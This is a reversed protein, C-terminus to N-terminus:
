LSDTQGVLEGVVADGPELLGDAGVVGRAEAVDALTQRRAHAEGGSLVPPVAEVETRQALSLGRVHEHGVRNARAAVGAEKRATASTQSAKLVGM